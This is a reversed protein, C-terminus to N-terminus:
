GRDVNGINEISESRGSDVRARASCSPQDSHGQPYDGRGFGFYLVGLTTSTKPVSWYQTNTDDWDENQGAIAVRGDFAFFATCAKLVSQSAVFAVLVVGICVTVRIISGRYIRVTGEWSNM